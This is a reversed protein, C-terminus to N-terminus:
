AAMNVPQTSGPLVPGILHRVLHQVVPVAVGDGILRMADFFRAPLKYSDPLGMLRAAERPSLLRSRVSPGEVFLLRQCSSGGKPSLLCGAVGDFRVEIRQIQERNEIRTRQSMAGVVFEGSARAADVKERNIPSMMSLFQNTRSRSNWTVGRPVAGVIDALVSTRHPPAPLTWWIWGEQAPISLLSLVRELGTPHWNQQPTTAMIHFPIQVDRRVALIFVRRRSQPLFQGALEGANELRADVDRQARCAGGFAASGARAPFRRCGPGMRASRHARRRRSAMPGLVNLAATVLTLLLGHSTRTPQEREDLLLMEAAAPHVPALREKMKEATEIVRYLLDDWSWERGKDAILTMTVGVLLERAGKGWVPDSSAPVIRAALERAHATSRIDRDLQWVYSRRDHPALLIFPEPMGSTMDGKADLVIMRDRRALMQDMLAHLIV